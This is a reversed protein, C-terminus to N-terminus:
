HVVWGDSANNAPHLICFINDLYTRLTLKHLTLRGQEKCSHASAFSCTHCLSSAKGVIAPALITIVLNLLLNASNIQVSSDSKSSLVAKFLFPVTFVALMNTLVLLM